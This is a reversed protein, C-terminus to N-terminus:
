LEDICLLCCLVLGADVNAAIRLRYFKSSPDFPMSSPEADALLDQDESTVMIAKENFLGQFIMEVEGRNGAKLVYRPPRSSDRELRGYLEGKVNCIEMATGNSSQCKFCMATISRDFKDRKPDRMLASRTVPQLMKLTVAPELKSNPGDWVSSSKRIVAQLFQMGSTPDFIDISTNEATGSRNTMQVALLSEAGEPVVLDPCLYGVCWDKPSSVPSQRTESQRQPVSSSTVPLTPGNILVSSKPVAASTPSAYSSPSGQYSTPLASPRSYNQQSQSSLTPILSPDRTMVSARDMNRAFMQGMVSPTPEHQVSPPSYKPASFNRKPGDVFFATLVIGLCITFAMIGLAAGAAIAPQEKMFVALSSSQQSLVKILSQMLISSPRLSFSDDSKDDKSDQSNVPKSIDKEVADVLADGPPHKQERTLQM